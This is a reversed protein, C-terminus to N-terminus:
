PIENISRKVFDLLDTRHKPVFAHSSICTLTGIMSSTEAAIFELLKYLGWYNGFARELFDHNRYVALMNITNTESTELQLTIYNLCPAGMHRSCEKDPYLISINFCNRTLTRRSNIATIIKDLQNTVKGNREYNIMRYFYTGWGSKPRKRTWPYFKDRYMDYFSQASSSDSYLNFPFITYAVDKPRLIRKSDCFLSLENIITDSIPESIKIHVVLNWIDWSKESIIVVAKRWVDHITDSTIIIPENM